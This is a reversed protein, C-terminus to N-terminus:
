VSILLYPPVRSDRLPAPCTQLLIAIDRYGEAVRTDDLAPEECWPLCVCSIIM